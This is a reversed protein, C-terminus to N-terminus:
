QPVEKKVFRADLSFRDGRRGAGTIATITGLDVEVFPPTKELTEKFVYIADRGITSEGDIKVGEASKYTLSTLTFAPPSEPMAEAIVLLADLASKSRDMYRGILQVRQRYNNAIQYDYDEEESTKLYSDKIAETLYPGGFVVAALVVWLLAAAAIALNFNRSVDKERQAARWAAPLLNLSKKELGRRAVGELADGTSDTTFRRIGGADLGTLLSDTPPADQEGDPSLTPPADQEGDPSLSCSAGEVFVLTEEVRGPGLEAEASLLTLSLDRRWDDDNGPTIARVLRPIGAEVILINWEGDIEVLALKRAGTDFLDAHRARLVHWAGLISLDVRAPLGARLRPLIAEWTEFLAAPASAVLVVLGDPEEALVEHAITQEEGTFPSLRDMQLEAASALSERAALPLKVVRLLTSSTKLALTIDGGACLARFTKLAGEEDALDACREVGSAAWGKQAPQLRLARLEAASQALVIKRRNAM